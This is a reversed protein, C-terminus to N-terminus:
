KNKNQKPEVISVVFFISRCCCCCCSYYTRLEPFVHVFDMRDLLRWNCVEAHLFVFKQEYTRWCVERTSKKRTATSSPKSFSYPYAAFPCTCISFMRYYFFGLGSSRNEISSIPMELSAPSLHFHFCSFLLFHFVLYCFNLYNEYFNREYELEPWLFSPTHATWMQTNEMRKMIEMAIREKEFALTQVDRVRDYVFITTSHVCFINNLLTKTDSFDSVVNPCFNTYRKLTHTSRNDYFVLSMFKHLTVM